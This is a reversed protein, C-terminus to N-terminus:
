IFYFSSRHSKTSSTRIYFFFWGQNQSAVLTGYFFGYSKLYMELFVKGDCRINEESKLDIVVDRNGNM